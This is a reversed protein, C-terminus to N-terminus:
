TSQPLLVNPVAAMFTVSLLLAMLMFFAWELLQLPTVARWCEFVPIGQRAEFCLSVFDVVIEFRSHSALFGEERSFSHAARSARQRRACGIAVIADFVVVSGEYTESGLDFVPAGDADVVPGLRVKLFANVLVWSAAACAM